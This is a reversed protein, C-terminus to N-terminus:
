QGYDTESSINLDIYTMHLNLQFYLSLGMCFSNLFIVEQQHNLQKYTIATIDAGRVWGDGFGILELSWRGCDRYNVVLKSFNSCILVIVFLCLIMAGGDGVSSFRLFFYSIRLNVRFIKLFKSNVFCINFKYSSKM